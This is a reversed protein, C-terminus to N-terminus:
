PGGSNLPYEGWNCVYIAIRCIRNDIGARKAFIRFFDTYQNGCKDLTCVLVANQYCCLMKRATSICGDVSMMFDRRYIYAHLMKLPNFKHRKALCDKGSYIGHHECM